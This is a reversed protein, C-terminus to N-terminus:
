KLWKKLKKNAQKLSYIESNLKDQKRIDIIYKLREKNRKIVNNNIKIIYKAFKKKNILYCILYIPLSIILVIYKFFIICVLIILIILFWEM